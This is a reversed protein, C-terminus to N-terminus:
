RSANGPLVVLRVTGDAASPKQGQVIVKVTGSAYGPQLKAGAPSGTVAHDLYDLTFLSFMVTVLVCAVLLFPVRNNKKVYRIKAVLNKKKM